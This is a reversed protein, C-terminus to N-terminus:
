LRFRHAVQIPRLTEWEVIFSEEMTTLDRNVTTRVRSREPLEMTGLVDTCARRFADACREGLHEALDLDARGVGMERAVRRAIQDALGAVAMELKESLHNRTARAITEEVQRRGTEIGYNARREERDARTKQEYPDFWEFTDSM